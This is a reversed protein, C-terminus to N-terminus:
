VLFIITYWLAIGQFLGYVVEQNEWGQSFSLKIFKLDYTKNSKIRKGIECAIPFAIGLLTAIAFAEQYTIIQFIALVLYVPLWWYLGRLTLALTAYKRYQKCQKEFTDEIQEKIFFNTIQHIFPFTKGETDAYDEILHKETWPEVRTLSGVWEGWGKAEGVLYAVLVVLGLWDNMTATGLVLAIWLGYLHNGVFKVEIEKNFLKIKGFSQIVGTGRLRNLIAELIM